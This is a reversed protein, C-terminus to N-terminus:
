ITGRFIKDLGLKIKAVIVANHPQISYFRKLIVKKVKKFNGKPFPELYM